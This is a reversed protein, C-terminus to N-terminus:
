SRGEDRGGAQELFAMAEARFQEYVPVMEHVLPEMRSWELVFPYTHRALHRFGLFPALRDVTAQSILAPRAAAGAVM